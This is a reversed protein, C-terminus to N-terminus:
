LNEGQKFYAIDRTLTILLMVSSCVPIALYAYGTPLDWTDFPIRMRVQTIEIGKMMLIMLFGTLVADRIRQLKRQHAPSMKTVFFDMELHEKRAYLVTTGLFVVWIFLLRSFDPVWLWSIGFFYRLAIRLINLLFLVLFLAGTLWQLANVFGDIYKQM